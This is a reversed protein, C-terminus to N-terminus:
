NIQLRDNCFRSRRAPKTRKSDVFRRLNCLKQRIGGRICAPVLWLRRSAPSSVDLAFREPLGGGGQNPPYPDRMSWGIGVNKLFDM